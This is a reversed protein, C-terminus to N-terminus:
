ARIQLRLGSWLSINFAPVPSVKVPVFETAGKVHTGNVIVISLAVAIEITPPYTRSKPITKSTPSRTRCAETGSRDVADGQIVLNATDIVQFHNRMM